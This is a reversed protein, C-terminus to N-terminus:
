IKLSCSARGTTVEFGLTQMHTALQGSAVNKTMLDGPNKTGQIKQYKLEGSEGKAQM